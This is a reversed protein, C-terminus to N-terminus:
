PRGRMTPTSIPWSIVLLCSSVLWPGEEVNGHIYQVIDPVNGGFLKTDLWVKYVREPVAMHEVKV